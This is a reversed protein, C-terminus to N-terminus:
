KLLLAAKAPSYHWDISIIKKKKYYKVLRRIKSVSLQFGRKACQDKKNELLHKELMVSKRILNLLDRPLDGALKKEKLVDNISKGIAVKVSPIGYQDRLMLGILSGSYGANALKTILEEIEKPNYALWEKKTKKLPKKSGSKGKASSHM